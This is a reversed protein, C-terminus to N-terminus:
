GREILARIQHGTITNTKGFDLIAQIHKAGQTHHLSGHDLGLYKEPGFVVDRPMNSPMGAAQLGAELAPAEVRRCDDESLTTALLPYLLTRKITSQLYHWADRQQIHGSRIRDAWAVTKDRMARIQAEQSGNPALHVGLIRSASSVPLREIPKRGSRTEVTLEADNEVYSVKGNKHM